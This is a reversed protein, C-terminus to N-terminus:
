AALAGVDVSLADLTGVRGTVGLEQVPNVNDERIGEQAAVFRPTSGDGTASVTVDLIPCDSALKYTDDAWRPALMFEAGGHVLEVSVSDELVVLADFFSDGEQAVRWQAAGDDVESSAARM